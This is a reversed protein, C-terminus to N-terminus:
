EQFTTHTEVGLESTVKRIREIMENIKEFSEDQSLGRIDQKISGTLSAGKQGVPYDIGQWMFTPIDAFSESLKKRIEPLKEPRAIDFIIGVEMVNAQHTKLAEPVEPTPTGPAINKLADLPNPIKGAAKKLLEIPNPFSGPIPLGVGLVLGLQRARRQALTRSRSTRRTGEVPPTEGTFAETEKQEEEEPELMSLDIEEIPEARRRKQKDYEKKKKEYERFAYPSAGLEPKEPEEIEPEEPVGRVGLGRYRLEESWNVSTGEKFSKAAELITSYVRAKSVRPHVNKLTETTPRVLGTEALLRQSTQM